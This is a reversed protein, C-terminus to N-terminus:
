VQPRQDRGGPAVAGGGRTAQFSLQQTGHLNKGQVM